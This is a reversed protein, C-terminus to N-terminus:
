YQKPLTANLFRTLEGHLSGSILRALLYIGVCFIVGHAGSQMVDEPIEMGRNQLYTSLGLYFAFFVFWAVVLWRSLTACIVYTIYKGPMAGYLKKILLKDIEATLSRCTLFSM